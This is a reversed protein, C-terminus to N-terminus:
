GADGCRLSATHGNRRLAALDDRETGVGGKMSPAAHACTPLEMDIMLGRWASDKAATRAAVFAILEVM